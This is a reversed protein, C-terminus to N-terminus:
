YNATQTNNNFKVRINDEELYCYFYVFVAGIGINITLFVFFVVIYVTCFSRECSGCVKKHGNLTDNYIMENEVINEICEEVM